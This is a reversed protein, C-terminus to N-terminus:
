CRKLISLKINTLLLVNNETFFFVNKNIRTHKVIFLYLSYSKININICTKGM